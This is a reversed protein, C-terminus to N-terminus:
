PGTGMTNEPRGVRRRHRMWGGVVLAIGAALAMVGGILLATTSVVLVAAVVFPIACCVALFGAALGIM